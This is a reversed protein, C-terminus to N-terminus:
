SRGTALTSEQVLLECQWELDYEGLSSTIRASAQREGAGMRRWDQLVRALAAPRLARHTSALREALLMRAHAACASRPAPVGGRVERAPLVSVFM